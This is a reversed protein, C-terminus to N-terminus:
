EGHGKAKDQNHFEIGLTVFDREVVKRDEWKRDALPNAKSFESIWWTTAAFAKSIVQLVENSQNWVSEQAEAVVESIKKMDVAPPLSSGLRAAELKAFLEAAIEEIGRLTPVKGRRIGILYDKEPRPLTIRGTDMLEIGENLVRVLHMAAKTDYGFEAILDPRQGRKGTGEGKMTRLMHECFKHFHHGAHSSLFSLSNPAIHADWVASKPALNDVFLFELASPNGSAAMKAWKRLSYMNMDMDDATNRAKDGATSWVFHPEVDRIGVIEEMPPIYVGLLDFDSKDALKAGHAASGGIFLHITEGLYPYNTERVIMEYIEPAQRSAM